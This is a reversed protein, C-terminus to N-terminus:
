GAFMERRAAASLLGDERAIARIFKALDTVTSGLGASGGTAPTWDTTDMRWWNFYDEYGHAM